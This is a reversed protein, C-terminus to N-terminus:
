HIGINRKSRIETGNTSKNWPAAKMTEVEMIVLSISRM